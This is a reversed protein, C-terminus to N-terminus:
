FCTKSNCCAARRRCRSSLSPTSGRGGLHGSALADALADEDVLGGRATNILIAGPRMKALARRDIMRTTEPTCPLHLSVVDAAALLEDLSCLRVGHRAAFERDAFPDYAIM